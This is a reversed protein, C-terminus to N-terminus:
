CFEWWSGNRLPDRRERRQSSGRGNKIQVFKDRSAASERLTGGGEGEHQARGSKEGPGGPRVCAGIRAEEIEQGDETALRPAQVSHLRKLEPRLGLAPLHVQQACGPRRQRLARRLHPRVTARNQDIRCRALVIAPARSRAQWRPRM